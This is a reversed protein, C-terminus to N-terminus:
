RLGLADIAIEEVLGEPNGLFQEVHVAHHDNAVVRQHALTVVVAVIDVNGVIEFRYGLAEQRGDDAESQALGVEVTQLALGEVEEGLVIEVVLVVIVIKGLRQDAEFV